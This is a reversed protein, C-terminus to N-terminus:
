KVLLKFCGPKDGNIRLIYMGKANDRMDIRNIDGKFIGEKVLSGNINYIQYRTAGSIGSLNVEFMGQSPNPYVKFSRTNADKVGVGGDGTYMVHKVGSEDMTIAPLDGDMTFNITSTTYTYDPHVIFGDVVLDEFTEVTDDVMVRQLMKTAINDAATIEVNEENQYGQVLIDVDMNTGSRRNGVFINNNMEATVVSGSDAKLSVAPQIFETSADPEVKNDIFVNDELLLELANEGQGSQLDLVSGNRQGMDAPPEVNHSVVYATDTMFTCNTISVSNTHAEGSNQRVWILGNLGASGVFSTSNGFFCNDLELNCDDGVISFAGRSAANDM